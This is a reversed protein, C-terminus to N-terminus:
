EETVRNRRHLLADLERYLDGIDPITACGIWVLYHSHPADAVDLWEAVWGRVAGAVLEGRRALQTSHRPMADRPLWMVAVGDPAPIHEVQLEAAIEIFVQGYADEPLRALMRRIERTDRSDGALLVRTSIPADHVHLADDM